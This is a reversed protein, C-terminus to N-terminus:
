WKSTTIRATKVDLQTWCNVQLCFSNIDDLTFFMATTYMDINKISGKTIACNSDTFVDMEDTTILPPWAKVLCVGTEPVNTDVPNPFIMKVEPSVIYLVFEVYSFLTVHLQLLILRNNQHLM